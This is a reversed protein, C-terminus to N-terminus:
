SDSSRSPIADTEQAFWAAAKKLIDREARLTRNERRLRVLEAREDSSMGEREGSDVEKRHVWTSVTQPSLKYERAVDHLRRGSRVLEVIKQRFEPPYQSQRAMTSQGEGRIRSWRSERFIPLIMWRVDSTKGM